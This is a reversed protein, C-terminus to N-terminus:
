RVGTRWVTTVIIAVFATITAVVRPDFFSGHIPFAQWCVNITAHFLAAGFVSRGTNNYLWVIIVRASITWVSWWVIWDLSRHVQVLAVLHFLVWIVGLLVSAKLAGCRNQMRDIAYGSWGLEEGVASAFFVVCLTLTPLITLQPTPVPTGALRQVAYSLVFICPNLLLIPAYWTKATIRKYDFARTLLARAGAPGDARRVVILAALGPCVFTLAAVPLGPLFQFEIFRGLVWFPVALTFVCLFYTLLSGSQPPVTVIM